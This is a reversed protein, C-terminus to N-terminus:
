RDVRLEVVFGEPLERRGGIFDGNIDSVWLRDGAFHVGMPNHLGSAVLHVDGNETIRYVQGDAAPAHTMQLSGSGLTAVFLQGGYAGFGEPAFAMGTPTVLRASQVLPTDM